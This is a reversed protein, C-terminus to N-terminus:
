DSLPKVNSEFISDNLSEVSFDLRLSYFPAETALIRGDHSLINGRSAYIPKIQYNRSDSLNRLLSGNPGYQTIIMQAFICLAIGFFIIYLVNVRVLIDKKIHKSGPTPLKPTKRETAM